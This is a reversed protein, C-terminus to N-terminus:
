LNTESTEFSVTNKNSERYHWFAYDCCFFKYPKSFVILNFINSLDNAQTQRSRSRVGTLAIKKKNQALFVVHSVVSHMGHPGGSLFYLRQLIVSM